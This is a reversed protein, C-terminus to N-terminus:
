SLANINKITCLSEMLKIWSFESRTQKQPIEPLATKLPIQYRYNKFRNKNIRSREELNLLKPDFIM